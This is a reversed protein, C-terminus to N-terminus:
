SLDKMTPNNNKILEIKKKRSWWKLQKERAIADNRSQSEEFYLLQTIHYKQTFWPIEWSKHEVIRRELNNTIGIYFVSQYTNTMIYVYYM